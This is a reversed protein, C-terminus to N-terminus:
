LFAIAVQLVLYLVARQGVDSGKCLSSTQEVEEKGDPVVINSAQSREIDVGPWNEQPEKRVM